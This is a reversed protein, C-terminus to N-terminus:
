SAQHDVEVKGIVVGGTAEVRAEVAEGGKEKRQKGHRRNRASKGVHRLNRRSLYQGHKERRSDM